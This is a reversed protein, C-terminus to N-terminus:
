YTCSGSVYDDDLITGTIGNLSAWYFVVENAYWDKLRNGGSYFTWTCSNNSTTKVTGATYLGDENKTEYYVDQEAEIALHNNSLTYNCDISAYFKFYIGYRIYRVKYTVTGWQTQSEDGENFADCYDTETAKENSTSMYLVEDEFGYSAIVAEKQTSTEQQILHVKENKTDIEYVQGAIKIRADPNLLTALMDDDVPIEDKHLYAIRMSIFDLQEELKQCASIDGESLFTIAKEYDDVTNFSLM